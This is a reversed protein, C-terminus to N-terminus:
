HTMRIIGTFLILRELDDSKLVRPRHVCATAQPAALLLTLLLLVPGRRQGAHVAAFEALKRGLMIAPRALFFGPKQWPISQTLWMIHSMVMLGVFVGTPWLSSAYSTDGSIVRGDARPHLQDPGNSRCSPTKDVFKSSERALARLGNCCKFNVVAIDSIIEKLILLMFLFTEDM